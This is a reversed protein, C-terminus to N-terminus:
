RESQIDSLNQKLSIVENELQRIYDKFVQDQRSLHSQFEAYILYTGFIWLLPILMTLPPRFTKM